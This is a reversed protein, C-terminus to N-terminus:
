DAAPLEFWFVTGGGPAPEFGIRGGSREVIAKSIALGM